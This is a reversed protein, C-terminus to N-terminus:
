LGPNNLLDILESFNGLLRNKKIPESFTGYGYKIGIFRVGCAAAALQDEETDGLYICDGFPIHYQTILFDLSEIKNKFVPSRTDPTVVATFFGKIKLHEMIKWTPVRPKNTVIYMLTGSESLQNLTEMVGPYLSSGMCGRTDYIARFASELRDLTQESANGFARRFIVRTTPGIQVELNHMDIDPMVKEIAEQFSRILGVRSDVLTGDLDFILFM